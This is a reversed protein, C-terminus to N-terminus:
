QSELLRLRATRLNAAAAADNPNLRLAAEFHPIAVAIKGSKALALGLNEEAAEYAPWAKLAAGYRAIAEAFRGQHALGIGLQNEAGAFNSRPEPAGPELELARKFEAAAADPRGASHLALGLNNHAVWNRPSRRATDTWLALEGRFRGSAAHSLGAFAAAAAVAAAAPLYARTRGKGVAGLGAAALGILGLVPAYALHDAAWAYRLYAMPFFGLVPVLNLVFWGVGLIAHRGWTERRSYLWFLLAILLAWPALAWLLVPRVAWREYLFATDFPLVAKWFYFALAKGAAALRQLPGGLPLAIGALARHAQFILTVAGAALSAAAYPLVHLLDRRTLRRHGWWAHLLIVAPFMVVSAKCLLAAVFLAFSGSRKGLALRGACALLLVLSLTNKLESIWAVSEVTMPHVAFLLGGIWGQRVGLRSLLRWFLLAALLHLGINLLHYGLTDDQWLRWELWEVTSKLPLYDTGVKGMWIKALAGPGQLAQNRSVELTDDSVWAGHFAPSFALLGAAVIALAKLANLTKAKM